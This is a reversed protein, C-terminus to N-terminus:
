RLGLMTSSWGLSEASHWTVRQGQRAMASGHTFATRHADGQALVRDILTRAQEPRDHSVLYEVLDVAFGWPRLLADPVVDALRELDRTTAFWPLATRTVHACLLDLNAARTGPHTLITDATRGAKYAHSMDLFSGAAVIGLVSAPRDPTLIHNAIRWDRLRDDTVDLTAVCFSILSGGSNRASRQLRFSERRGGTVRRFTQRSEIWVFGESHFREAMIAIATDIVEGPRELGVLRRVLDASRDAANAEVM